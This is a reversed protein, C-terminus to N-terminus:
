RNKPPGLIGSVVEAARRSAGGTGLRGRVEQLAARMETGAPGLLREIELAVRDATFEDQILEVALRRGAILNVM